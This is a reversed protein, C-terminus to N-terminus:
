ELASPKLGLKSDIEGLQKKTLDIEASKKKIVGLRHNMEQTLSELEKKQDAIFAVVESKSKTKAVEVAETPLSDVIRKMKEITETAWERHEAEYRALAAQDEALKVRLGDRLELEPTDGCGSLFIFTFALSLCRISVPTM